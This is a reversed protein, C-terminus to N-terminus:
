RTRWRHAPRPRGAKRAATRAAAGGHGRGGRPRPASRRTTVRAAVVYGGAVVLLAFKISAALHARRTHVAIQNGSLVNLLSAGEIADGAVAGVVLLVPTRPHGLVRRARDVHLGALVGYTAMYGFDLWLSTRATRRGGPGWRGMISEARAPTRALEFPIIGPGGTRRLRRELVMMLATYGLFAGTAYRIGAGRIEPAQGASSRSM